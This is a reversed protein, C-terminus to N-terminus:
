FGTWGESAGDIVEVVHLPLIWDLRALGKFSVTSQPSHIPPNLSDATASHMHNCSVTNGSVHDMGGTQSMRANGSKQGLGKTDWNQFSLGAKLLSSHTPTTGDKFSDRTSDGTSTAELTNLGILRTNAKTNFRDIVHNHTAPCRLSSSCPGHRVLHGVGRLKGPM